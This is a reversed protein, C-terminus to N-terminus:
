CRRCIELVGKLREAERLDRALDEQRARERTAWMGPPIDSATSGSGVSIHPPDASPAQQATPEDRVKSVKPAVRARQPKDYMELNAHATYPKSADGVGVCGAMGFACWVIAASMM